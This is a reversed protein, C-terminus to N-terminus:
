WRPSPKLMLLVFICPYYLLVLADAAMLAQVPRVQFASPLLRPPLLHLILLRSLYILLGWVWAGLLLLLLAGALQFWWAGAFVALTIRDQWAYHWAVSVHRRKQRLYDGWSAPTDSVALAQSSSVLWPAYHKKSDNVLLDDDGGTLHHYMTHDHAEALMRTYALNRGVGMFPRGLMTWSGYLLATLMTEYRAFSHVLGPASRQPAMGLVLNKAHAFPTVMHAIWAESSPACDADTLLLVDASAAKIGRQLAMRKGPGSQELRIVQLRPHKKALEALVLPTEDTSADDVVVVEFTEYSQALIQPLNVGLATAENHACIIVSVPPGSHMVPLAKVHRLRGFGLIWFGGAVLTALVSGVVIVTTIM